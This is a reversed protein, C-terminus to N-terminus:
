RTGGDMDPEKLSVRDGERVGSAIAVQDRGRRLLTVPRSELTGDSAVYVIGTV